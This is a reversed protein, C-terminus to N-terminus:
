NTSNNRERWDLVLAAMKNLLVLFLQTYTM